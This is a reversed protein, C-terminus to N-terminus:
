EDEFIKALDTYGGILRMSDGNVSVVIPVTPWGYAKKVDELIIEQEEGNFRVLEYPVSQESLLDAAM